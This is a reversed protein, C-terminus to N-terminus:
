VGIDKFQRYYRAENFNKKMALSKGVRIDIPSKSRPTYYYLNTHPTNMRDIRGHAQEWQRYSYPLSYFFTANTSTCNWAESGAAYQVLYVWRDTTPVPDHRHGNWEALQPTSGSTISKTTSTTRESESISIPEIQDVVSVNSSSNSIKPQEPSSSTTSAPNQIQWTQSELNREAISFTSSKDESASTSRQETGTKSNTVSSTKMSSSSDLKSSNESSKQIQWSEGLTRLMELEYDFNYFVILRPVEELVKKVAELRSPDSNVVRRMVAFLEAADRLPRDEYIHWREKTVRGLKEKDFSVPIDIAHRTTHRVCDMEVLIHNRIKVLKAVSVYRQVKPFKSFPAYIIHEDKFETRNRYYGNAVMVPIYDLWTDGPTASLMIWHNKKAIKLFAKVWHGSGVLRQEDFIFFAGYVNSYKSINNWSDVTLVGASTANLRKGVGYRAFETEWDGEDRKRATTIVYVDRPAEVKMYYSAGVLSKGSGVGGWVICGNHMKDLAAVQEDRLTLTM